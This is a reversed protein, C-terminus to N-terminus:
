ASHQANCVGKVRQAQAKLTHCEEISHSYNDGRSMCNKLKHQKKPEDKKTKDKGKKSPNSKKSDANSQQSPTVGDWTEIEETRECFGVFEPITHDMPDFDQLAVHSEAL